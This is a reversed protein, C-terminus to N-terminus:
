LLSNNYGGLRWSALHNLHVSYIRNVAVVDANLLRRVSITEREISNQEGLKQSSM